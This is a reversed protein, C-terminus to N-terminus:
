PKETESCATYGRERFLNCACGFGATCERRGGWAVAPLMHEEKRHGCKCLAHESATPEESERAPEAAPSPPSALTLIATKISRLVFAAREADAGSLAVSAAVAADRAAERLAGERAADLASLIASELALRAASAEVSDDRMLANRYCALALDVTKPVRNM